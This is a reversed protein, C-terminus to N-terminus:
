FNWKEYQFHLATGLNIKTLSTSYSDWTIKALNDTIRFGKNMFREKGWKSSIGNKDFILNDCGSQGM